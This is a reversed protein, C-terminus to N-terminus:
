AGFSVSQVSLVFNHNCQIQHVLMSHEGCKCKFSPLVFVLVQDHQTMLICLSLLNLAGLVGIGFKM